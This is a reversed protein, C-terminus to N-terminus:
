SKEGKHRRQFRVPLVIKGRTTRMILHPRTPCLYVRRWRRNVHVQWHTAQVIRSWTNHDRAVVRYRFPVPEGAVYAARWASLKLKPAGITM